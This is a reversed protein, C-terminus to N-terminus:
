EVLEGLQFAARSIMRGDSFGHGYGGINHSFLPNGGYLAMQNAPVIPDIAHHLSILKESTGEVTYHTALTTLGHSSAGFRDIRSNLVASGYEGYIGYIINSNGFVNGGMLPKLEHSAWINVRLMEMMAQKVLFEKQGELLLPLPMPPMDPLLLIDPAIFGCLPVREMVTYPLPTNPERDTVCFHLFLATIIDPKSSLVTGLYGWVKLADKSSNNVDIDMAPLDYTVRWDEIKGVPYNIASGRMLDPFYYDFLARFDGSYEVIRKLDYVASVNVGGEFHEPYEELTKAVILGGLSVGLLYVPKDALDWLQDESTLSQACELLDEPGKLVSEIGNSRLSVAAFAYNALKRNSLLADKLTHIEEYNIAPETIFPEIGHVYIILGEPKLLSEPTRPLILYAHNGETELDITFSLPTIQNVDRTTATTISNTGSNPSLPHEECGQLLLLLASTVIFLMLKDM